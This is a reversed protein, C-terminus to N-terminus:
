EHEVEDRKDAIEQCSITLSSSYRHLHGVYDIRAISSGCLDASSASLQSLELQLTMAPLWARSGRMITKARPLSSVAPAVAHRRLSHLNMVRHLPGPHTVQPPPPPPARRHLSKERSRAYERHPHSRTTHRSLASAVPRSGFGSM